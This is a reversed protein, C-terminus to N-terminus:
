RTIRELIPAPMTDLDLGYRECAERVYAGLLEPSCGREQAAALEVGVRNLRQEAKREASAWAYVANRFEKRAVAEAPDVARGRSRGSAKTEVAAAPPGPIPAPALRREPKPQPTTPEAEAPPHAPTAWVHENALASRRRRGEPATM